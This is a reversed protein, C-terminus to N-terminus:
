LVEEYYVPIADARSECRQCEEENGMAAYCDAADEWSTASCLGLGAQRYYRASRIYLKAAKEYRSPDAPGEAVLEAAEAVLKDAENIWTQRWKSFPWSYPNKKKKM